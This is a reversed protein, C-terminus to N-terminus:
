CSMGDTRADTYVICFTYFMENSTINSNPNYIPHNKQNVDFDFLRLEVFCRNPILSLAIVMANRFLRHMKTVLKNYFPLRYHISLIDVIKNGNLLFYM